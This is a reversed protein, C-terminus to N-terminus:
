VKRHAKLEPHNKGEDRVSLKLFLIKSKWEGNLFRGSEVCYILFPYVKRRGSKVFNISFSYFKRNSWWEKQLAKIVYSFSLLVDKYSDWTYSNRNKWRGDTFVLSSPSIQCNYVCVQGSITSIKKELTVNLQNGTFIVWFLTM